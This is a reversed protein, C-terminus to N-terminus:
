KSPGYRYPEAALEEVTALSGNLSAPLKELLKWASVGIPKKMDRLAYGVVVEAARGSVRMSAM